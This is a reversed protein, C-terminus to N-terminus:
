ILVNGLFNIINQSTSNAVKPAYIEPNVFLCTKMNLFLGQHKRLDFM